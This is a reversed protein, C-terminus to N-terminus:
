GKCQHPSSVTLCFREISSDKNEGGSDLDSPM